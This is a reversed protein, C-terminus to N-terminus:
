KIRVHTGRDGLTAFGLEEGAELAKRVADTDVGVTVKQFREPMEEPPLDTFSIPQKGGNKAITVKHRDTEIKALGHEQLFWHLNGKLRDCLKAEADALEQMQRARQKLAAARAQRELLFEAYNDVKVHLDDMAAALFEKILAEQRVDDANELCEELTRIDSSIDFLSKRVIEQDTATTTM